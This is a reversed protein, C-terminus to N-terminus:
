NRMVLTKVVLTQAAGVTHGGASRGREARRGQQWADPRRCGMHIYIYIYICIYVYVHYYTYIYIYVCMCMLIYM